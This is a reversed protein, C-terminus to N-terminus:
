CMSFMKLTQPFPITKVFVPWRPYIGDALYYGQNYEHGNAMINVNPAEGKLVDTLLVLQNLMNVDNNSGVVGFYCALDV